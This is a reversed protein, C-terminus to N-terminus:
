QQHFGFLYRVGLSFQYNDSKGTYYDTRQQYVPELIFRDRIPIEGKLLMGGELNSGYSIKLGNKSGFGSGLEMYNYFIPFPAPFHDGLHYTLFVIREIGVRAYLQPYIFTNMTATQPMESAKEELWDGPTTLLKGANLGIGAGVWKYDVRVFPNIGWIPNNQKINSTLGTEIKMGVYGNLGYEVLKLSDKKVVSYGAGGLKYDQNFTQSMSQRDCGSGTGIDHYNYYNGGSYGVRITQYTSSKSQPNTQSMILLSVLLLSITSIRIRSSFYTTLLHSVVSFAAPILTILLVQFEMESFWNRTVYLLVSLMLLYSSDPLPHNPLIAVTKQDYKKERIIILALLICVAFLSFIQVIKLGMFYNGQFSGNSQPDRFFEIIFRAALILLLSFLALNGQRKFSQRFRIVTVGIFLCSLIFYLPVPHITHTLADTSSIQHSIFQHFYAPAHVGYQIGWPIHTETGYCCGVMLCGFRQVAMGFPAAIAFADLIPYKIHLLGKAFAVGIFGFVLAGMLNTNYQAPFQFHHIFYSFDDPTIAGFKSGTIFFIRVTVIVLLWTSWPFKRKYGELLYIILVLLFSIRYFLDYFFQGNDIEIKM